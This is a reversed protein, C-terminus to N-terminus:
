AAINDCCKSLFADPEKQSDGQTKALDVVGLPGRLPHKLTKNRARRPLRRCSATLASYITNGIIGSITGSILISAIEATHERIGLFVTTLWETLHTPVRYLLALVMWVVALIFAGVLHDLFYLRKALAPDQLM